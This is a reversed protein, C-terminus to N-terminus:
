LSASRQQELEYQLQALQDSISPRQKGMDVGIRLNGNNTYGYRIRNIHFDYFGSYIGEGFKKEGYKDQKILINVIPIPITAELQADYNVLEFNTKLSVEKFEALASTAFQSAVADTTISSNQKISVRLNYKAQSQTDNYPGFFHYTGGVQAGQVYVRNIIDKFDQNESYNTIKYGMPFRFGVTGSRAKFFFKRNKDVGWERTGTIDALKQICTMANDNFEIISPTYSTAEIDSVDYTIDTNPVIYNDLLDKVIVSVETSSYSAQVYIRNLQTVYGHGSISISESLGQVNPIKNEIVGQYWLDYSNTSSNRGYIRANYEGSIAREEFIKRPLSFGFEGCGGIRSYSWNLDTYENDLIYKTTFTLDRIELRFKM